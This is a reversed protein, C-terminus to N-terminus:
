GASLNRGASQGKSRKVCQKCGVSVFFLAQGWIGASRSQVVAKWEIRGTGLPQHMRHRGKPALRDRQCADRPRVVGASFTDPRRGQFGMPGASGLIKGSVEPGFPRCLVQRPQSAGPEFALEMRQDLRQLNRALSRRSTVSSLVGNNM